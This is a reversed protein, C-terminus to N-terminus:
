PEEVIRIGYEMAVTHEVRCGRYAEWGKVFFCVDAKDMLQIASGLFWLPNHGDASESVISDIVEIDDGLLRKAVQVAAERELRIQTESRNCMPQSIFVMM